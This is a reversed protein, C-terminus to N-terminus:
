RKSSHVPSSNTQQQQQQQKQKKINIPSFYLNSRVNKQTPTTEAANEKVKTSFM